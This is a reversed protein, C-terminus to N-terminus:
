EYYVVGEKYDFLYLVTALNNESNHVWIEVTHEDDKFEYSYVKDFAKLCELVMEGLSEQKLM